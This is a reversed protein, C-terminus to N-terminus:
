KPATTPSQISAMKANEVAAAIADKVNTENRGHDTIRDYYQQAAPSNLDRDYENTIETATQRLAKELGAHLDPGTIEIQKGLYSAAVHEALQNASRYYYESIQRHGNEHEVVHPTADDPVWIDVSLHLIMHVKTITVTAHAADSNQSEGAVSTESSFNSDCLAEEGYALPPMNAPPAHLDFTHSAFAVPQKEITLSPQASQEHRSSSNRYILWASAVIGLIILLVVLRRM